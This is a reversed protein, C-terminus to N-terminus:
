RDGSGVSTSRHGVWVAACGIVNTLLVYPIGHETLARLTEAAGPLLEYGGLSRDSLLLTGDVDFLFGSLRPFGKVRGPGARVVMM